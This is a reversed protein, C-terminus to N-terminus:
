EFLPRPHDNLFLGGPDLTRRIDVFESFGPHRAKLQSQTLHHEKGWHPWGGHDYFLAELASMVPSYGQSMDDPVSFVAKPGDHSWSLLADDQAVFRVDVPQAYNPHHKKLFERVLRFVTKAYELPIAFEIERYPTPYEYVLIRHMRDRRELEKTFPAGPKRMNRLQVYCTEGVVTDPVPPFIDSYTEVARKNPLLYFNFHRNSNLLHDWDALVDDVPAFYSTEVLDYNPLTTLSTETIVGLLGLSVRAARMLDNGADVDIVEGTATVLRAANMSASISPLTLGTGHVGTSIAGAVSTTDLEGLNALSRGQDWLEDLVEFLRRGGPIAVTQGSLVVPGSMRLDLLVGSTAVVPGFSHGGGAVRLNLGDDKADAICRQVHAENTAEVIRAPQCAVSHNWNHWFPLGHAM